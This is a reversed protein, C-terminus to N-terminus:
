DDLRNIVESSVSKIALWYYQSRLSKVSLSFSLTTTIRYSPQLNDWSPPSLYILNNTIELIHFRNKYGNTRFSPKTYRNIKGDIRPFCVTRFNYVQRIAQPKKIISVHLQRDINRLQCPIIHSIQLIAYCIQASRTEVQMYLLVNM